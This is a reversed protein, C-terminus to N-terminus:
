EKKIIIERGQVKCDVRAIDEIITLLKNLEEYKPLNVTLRIDRVGEDLIIRVDYWRELEKVLDPFPESRFVFRKKRWATYNEVNVERVAMGQSTIEAQEGPSLVEEMLQQLVAYREQELIRRAPDSEEGAPLGALADADLPLVGGHRRRQRLYSILRKQICIQAYRGFTVGTEEGVRFHRVAGLFALGAESNLDELEASPLTQSFRRCQAALLPAYMRYLEAFADEDGAQARRLLEETGTQSQENTSAM